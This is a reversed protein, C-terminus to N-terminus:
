GQNPSNRNLYKEILRLDDFDKPRRMAKKWQIVYDLKAYRIGNFIDASDILEDVDEFWPQWQNFIELDGIRICYPKEPLPPYQQALEDWLSKKAIIDLDKSERIGRVALPGSGFIAFQDPPLRLKKLQSLLDM